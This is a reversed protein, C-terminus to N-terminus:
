LVVFPDCDAKALTVELKPAAERLRKALVALTLRESNSHGVCVVTLDAAVAALADHHRLEGTVYLDAGADIAKRFLDGCSGAGVALTRMMEDDAVGSPKALQVHKVGCARRIRQLMEKLPAPSKLLGVRGLGACPPAEALPVVDIAPEEYSHAARIAALVESVRRRPCVTEWCIEPAEEHKLPRGVSPRTLEGGRFTGTGEYRFGCQSYNGIRGAGAAFAAAAVAALDGAPLYVALKFQGEACVTELPRRSASMGLADALADNAGGPAADFATHVSHIALGARLAEHLVPTRRATIRSIPKFIIPHYAVVLNARRRRAEALVAVTLDICLLVRRCSANEDGALLGVNDWPQALSEAAIGDLEHAVESIRM